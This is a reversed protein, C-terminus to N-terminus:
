RPSDPFHHVYWDREGMPSKGSPEFISEDEISIFLIPSAIDNRLFALADNFLETFVEDPSELGQSVCASENLPPPRAPRPRRLYPSTCRVNTQPDLSAYLAAVKAIFAHYAEQVAVTFPEDLSHNSQTRRLRSTVRVVKKMQLQSM